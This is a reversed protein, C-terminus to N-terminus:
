IEPLVFGTRALNIAHDLRVALLHALYRLVWLERTVERIDAASAVNACQVTGAWRRPAANGRPRALRSLERRFKKDYVPFDAPRDRFSKAMQGLGRIGRERSRRVQEIDIEIPIIQETADAQHLKRGAPDFVASQGNGGAGLGNIDFVYCRCRPAPPM